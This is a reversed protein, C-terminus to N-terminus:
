NQYPGWMQLTTLMTAWLFSKSDAFRMANMETDHNVPIDLEKSLTSIIAYSASHSHPNSQGREKGIVHHLSGGLGLVTGSPTIGLIFWNPHEDVIGGDCLFHEESISVQHIWQTFLLLIDIKSKSIYIYNKVSM